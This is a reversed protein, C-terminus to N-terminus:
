DLASLSFDVWVMLTLTRNGIEAPAPPLAARHVAALAADDLLSSQSSQVLSVARVLGGAYDFRLEARGERHTIRALAPYIAAAQVAQHIRAALAALVGPSPAAPAPAPVDPAAPPLATALRRMPMSRTAGAHRAAPAFATAAPVVGFDRPPAASQTVWATPLRETIAEPPAAVVAFAMGGDPRPLPQQQLLLCLGAILGLHLSASVAM